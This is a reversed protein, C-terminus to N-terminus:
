KGTMNVTNSQFITQHQAAMSIKSIQEYLSHVDPSVPSPMSNLHCQVYNMKHKYFIQGFWTPLYYKL